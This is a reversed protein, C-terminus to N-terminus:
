ISLSSAGFYQIEMTDWLVLRHHRVRSQTRICSNNSQRKSMSSLPRGSGPITRTPEGTPESSKKFCCRMAFLVLTSTTRPIIASILFHVYQSAV